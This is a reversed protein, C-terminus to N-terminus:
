PRPMATPIVRQYDPFKGEVLKTLIEIEGFPGRAASQGLVQITAPEESDDLLRLLEIM